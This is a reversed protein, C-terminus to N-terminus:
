TDGSAAREAPAHAPALDQRRRVVVRSRTAAAAAASVAAAAAAAASAATDAADESACSERSERSERSARVRRSLSRPRETPTPTILTATPDAKCLPCTRPRGRQVELLWRDACTEHFRHGCVLKSVRQGPLYPELCVSCEEESPHASSGEGSTEEKAAGEGAAAEAAAGDFAGVKISKRLAELTRSERGSNWLTSIEFALARPDPPEDLGTPPLGRRRRARARRRRYCPILFALVFIQSPVCLPGPQPRPCRAILHYHTLAHLTHRRVLAVAVAVIGITVWDGGPLM